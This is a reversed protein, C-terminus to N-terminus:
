CVVTVCLILLDDNSAIRLPQTILKPNGPRPIDAWVFRHVPGVPEQIELSGSTENTAPHFTIFLDYQDTGQTGHWEWVGPTGTNCAEELNAFNITDGDWGTGEVHLSTSVCSRIAPFETSTAKRTEKCVPPTPQIKRAHSFKSSM